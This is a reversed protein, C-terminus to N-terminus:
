VNIIGKRRKIENEKLYEPIAKGKYKSNRTHSRRKKDNRIKM